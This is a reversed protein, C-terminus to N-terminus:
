CRPELLPGAIVGVRLTLAPNAKAFAALTKAVAAPDKRGIVVGMPGTLHPRLGALPSGEVAIRALRNKVM